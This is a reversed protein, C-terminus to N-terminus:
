SRPRKRPPRRVVKPSDAVIEPEDGPDGSQGEGSEHDPEPIPRHAELASAFQGFDNLEGNKAREVLTNLKAVKTWTKGKLIEVMGSQQRRALKETFCDFVSTLEPSVGIGPIIVVNAKRRIARGGLRLKEIKIIARFTGDPLTEDRRIWLKAIIGYKISQGGPSYKGGFANFSQLMHNVIFVVKNEDTFGMWPIWRRNFRGILKARQGMFTKEDDETREMVPTVLAASDLITCYVDDELLKDAGEKLMHWHLRPKGDETRHAVYYITGKFGAQAMARKIYKMRAAVELDIVAVTADPKVAAALYYAVTSKGTEPDGYIEYGGRLPVGIGDEDGLAVDLGWLKTRYRALVPIKGIVKIDDNSKQPSM